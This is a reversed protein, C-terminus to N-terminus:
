QLILCRNLRSGLFFGPHWDNHRQYTKRGARCRSEQSLFVRVANGALGGPAVQPSECRLKQEPVMRTVVTNKDISPNQTLTIVINM